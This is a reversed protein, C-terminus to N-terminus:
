AACLGDLQRRAAENKPDKDLVRRFLDGAPEFLGAEKCLMGLKMTANFPLYCISIKSLCDFALVANETDQHSLALAAIQKLADETAPHPPDVLLHEYEDMARQYDGNLEALLGQIFHQYPLAKDGAAHGTLSSAMQELAHIEKKKFLLLAKSRVSDINHVKQINALQDTQQEELIEVFRRTLEDMSTRHTDSLVAAQVPHRQQWVLVRGPQGDLEWQERLLGFDPKNREEEIRANLRKLVNDIISMLYETSKEYTVYYQKAAEYIQDDTWDDEQEPTKLIELFNKIGFLKVLSTLPRYRADLQREIKDMRIKHRFDPKLNNRGFLGDNCELAERTLNLIQQLKARVNKIEKNVTRYHTLRTAATQEPLLKRLTEEVPEGMTSLELEALPQHSVHPVKAAGLACNMVVCGQQAAYEAQNELVAIASQFSQITEAQWGGYTEVMDYIHGINPGVSRENSGAAHTHGERTHCLDVGALLIKAFGMHIACSLATNSVTPGCYALTDRNLPSKWPLLPGAFVNRGRWQGLLLPTVHFLSIFLSSDAFAFMEKCVDFSVKHPDVSVIIHPTLGESILQRCIRSVAIVVLRDRNEKVWPIADSLSPGGGLIIATKGKFADVLCEAFNVQNEALNELQRLNFTSNGLSIRTNYSITKIELNIHWSLERYESIFADAAALSEHFYLSDIYLYHAIELEEALQVWQDPTAVGITPPLDVLLNEQHLTHLIDPLEIFLYRSGAPVGHKLIYRVLMGSDTGLIINLSHDRFLKDGFFFQYLSDSGTKDFVNRNVKYLYRDGFSNTLVVDPNSNSIGMDNVM